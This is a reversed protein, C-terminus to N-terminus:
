DEVEMSVFLGTCGLDCRDIHNFAGLPTLAGGIYSLTTSYVIFVQCKGKLVIGQGTSMCVSFM